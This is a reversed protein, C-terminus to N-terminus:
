RYSELNILNVINKIKKNQQTLMILNTYLEFGISTNIDYEINKLISLITNLNTEKMNKYLSKPNTYVTKKFNKIIDDISIYNIYNNFHIKHNNISVLNL